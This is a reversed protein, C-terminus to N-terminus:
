KIEKVKKKHIAYTYCRSFSYTILKYRCFSFYLLYSFFCCLILNFCTLFPQCLDYLRRHVLNVDNYHSQYIERFYFVLVLFMIIRYTICKHDVIDYDTLNNLILGGAESENSHSTCFFHNKNLM